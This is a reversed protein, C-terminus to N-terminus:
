GRRHDARPQWYMPVYRWTWPIICILWLIGAAVSLQGRYAAIPPIEAAVRVVATAMVGLFCAWTLGDAFLARGSHGLSVRSVMGLTMAAFYGVTLAHLPASGLQQEGLFLLVASQWVYLGLALALGALALHLVALLRVGFSRAFGWGWGLYLVMALLPLDVLWLWQRWGALELVGHAVSGALFLPLAWPPRVITYRDLVRSSFFPVMRSTVSFFVPLLFFWVGGHRAFELLPIGGTNLWLLFALAGCWGAALALLLLRPFRQEPYGSNRVLRALALWAVAWGAIHLAMGAMVLARAAFLGLYVALLGGTMLLASVVYEGRRVRVDGLWNPMATMLFGMMFFPFLGYIMLYAHIWVPTASWGFPAYLDTYRAVLDGLWWGMALVAQVAGACFMVRHPAAVLYKWSVQM